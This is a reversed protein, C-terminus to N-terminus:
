KMHKLICCKLDTRTMTVDDDQIWLMEAMDKTCIYACYIFSGAIAFQSVIDYCVMGYWDVGAM